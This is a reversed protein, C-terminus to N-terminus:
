GKRHSELKEIRKEHGSLKEFVVAVRLNLADVSGVLKWLIYVGGSTLGLLAWDKFAAFDMLGEM